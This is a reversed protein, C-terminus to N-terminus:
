LFTNNLSSNSRNKLFFPILISFLKNKLSSQTKTDGELRLYIYDLGHTDEIGVTILTTDELCLEFLILCPMKQGNSFALCIKM